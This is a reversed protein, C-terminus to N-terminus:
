GHWWITLIAGVILVTNVAWFAVQAITEAM